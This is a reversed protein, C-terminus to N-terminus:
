VQKSRPPGRDRPIGHRHRYHTDLAAPIREFPLVVKSYQGMSRLRGGRPKGPTVCADESHSARRNNM